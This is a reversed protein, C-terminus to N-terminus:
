LKPIPRTVIEGLKACDASGLRGVPRLRLPDIRGRDDFLSNDIHMLVIEGFIATCSGPSGDGFPITRNVKCEFSIRVEAVRSPRIKESPLPTLGVKEMENVGYPYNVASDIMPELLSESVINVVFEPVAEINRLTDKPEGSKPTVISFMVIPPKTSVGNFYSFPALNGVGDKSCTSIWAIPRPVISGIMLRYVETHDMKAPDIERYEISM